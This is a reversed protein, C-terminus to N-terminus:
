ETFTAEIEMSGFMGTLMNKTNEMARSKLESNEAAGAIQDEAMKYFKAQEPVSLADNIRDLVGRDQSLMKSRDQDLNPKELQAKPLRITVSEGNEALEVDDDALGSLDVYANVTGAGFFLTQRGSIIDPLLLNDDQDDVVVEFEGVAAVYKSTDQISKLLATESQKPQFLNFGFFSAGYLGAMVVVLLGAVVLTFRKLPHAAKM